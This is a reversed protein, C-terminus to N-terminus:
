YRHIKLNGQSTTRFTCLNCAVPFLSKPRSFIPDSSLEIASSDDDTTLPSSSRLTVVDSSPAENNNNISQDTLNGVESSKPSESLQLSLDDSGPVMSEMGKNSETPPMKNKPATDAEKPITEFPSDKMGQAETDPDNDEPDKAFVEAIDVIDPENTCVKVVLKAAKPTSVGPVPIFDEDTNSSESPEKSVPQAFSVSKRGEVVSTMAQSPIKLNSKQRKIRPTEVAEEQGQDESSSLDQSGRKISAAVNGNSISNRTARKKTKGNAVPKPTCGNQVNENEPDAKTAKNNRDVKDATKYAIKAQAASRRASRRATRAPMKFSSSAKDPITEDDNCQDASEAESTTTQDSLLDQINRSDMTKKAKANTKPTTGAKTKGDSAKDKAKTDDKPNTKGKINTNDKGKSDNETLKLSRRTVRAPSSISVEVETKATTSKRGNTKVLPTAEKAKVPVPKESLSISGRASRRTNRAPTGNTAKDPIPPTAKNKIDKGKAVVGNVSSAEVDSSCSESTNSRLRKGAPKEVVEPIEETETEDNTDPADDGTSGISDAAKRKGKRSVPTAKAATRKAKRRNNRVRVFKGPGDDVESEDANSDDNSGANSSTNSGTDRIFFTNAFIFM